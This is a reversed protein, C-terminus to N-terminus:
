SSYAVKGWSGAARGTAWTWCAMWAAANLVVFSAAASALRLRAGAPRLGLLALGYFGVQAALAAQYLLGPLVTSVALLGILAWPVLLRFVKHSLFQVWIPNRWPLLAAGLRTLLQYGGSLTRVKRRFEDRVQDPLRDYAHARGDHLVRYGQMAVRLPWYVDDLLTGAPIPHFLDRRVASISGSVGVVSGVRSELKRIWKEYKWYVGVGAMVGPVSEVVLDGSVAGVGPDLFNELLLRVADPSWRQRADAFVVVDGAAAAVGATLAAAKGARPQEIVRVGATAFRRGVAATGDTSGDSVLIVEGPVGATAALETLEKLRGELRTEENHAAVVISLSAPPRGRAAPVRPRIRALVALALPYVVYTYAVFGALSWFLTELAPM